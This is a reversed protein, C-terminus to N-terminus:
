DLVVMTEPCVYGLERPHIGQRIAEFVFMMANPEYPMSLKQEPVSKLHAPIAKKHNKVYESLPKQIKAAFAQAAKECIEWFVKEETHTLCPILLEPSGSETTLFGQKELLPISKLIRPDCDVTDPSINHQILYFLKLMSIEAEQCTNFPLDAYKSCSYLASEYNYLKLNEANLYRGLSTCRQGSLLYEEKGRKAAPITYNHPYITGFAIWQGGNPRAPFVQPTRCDELSHWLGSEAINILMYRELRLSYFSTQKLAHVATKVANCYMESYTAAFAEQQKIYKVYDDAHYIIFDTYIRGDGMRKMLEGDVLKSVVPEVYAAAVGLAKSLESISVPKEYSLILINQALPNDRDALSIPEENWGCTGSNRVVLTQPIYSNETYKEMTEMGKKLQTRGFHLRNKITSEPLQLAESLSKISKGYFYHEAIITRYSAALFAIEKRLNEAEEACLIGHVFDHDDMIDNEAAISVTPLQYKKRLMDCFKRHFVTRLFAEMNHIEKGSAEYAFVTTMTEQVLDEADEISNYKFIAASMLEDIYKQLECNDM